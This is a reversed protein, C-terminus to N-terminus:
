KLQQTVAEMYQGSAREMWFIRSQYSGRSEKPLYHVRSDLRTYEQCIAPSNDTSGDDVLLLLFDLFGQGLISDVYERIYRGENYLPVVVSFLPRESIRANWKM